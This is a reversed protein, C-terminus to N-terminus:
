RDALHMELRPAGIPMAALEGGAINKKYSLDATLGFHRSGRNADCWAVGRTAQKFRSVANCPKLVPVVIKALYIQM